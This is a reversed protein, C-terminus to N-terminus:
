PLEIMGEDASAGSEASAPESPPPEVPPPEASAPETGPVYSVSPVETLASEWERFQTVSWKNASGTLWVTVTRYGGALPVLVDVEARGSRTSVRTMHYIPLSAATEPTSAAADPGARAIVAEITEATLGKPLNFVAKPQGATAPPYRNLMWAAAVGMVATNGPTNLNSSMPKSAIPPYNAYTCGGLVVSVSAAGAAAWVWAKGRLKM